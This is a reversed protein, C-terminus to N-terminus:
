EAWKETTPPHCFNAEFLDAGPTLNINTGVTKGKRWKCQDDCTAASTTEVCRDILDVDQTLDKPACYDHDPVLDAGNNWACQLVGSVSVTLCEASNTKIVCEAWQAKTTKIAADKIPHCFEESFLAPPTPCVEFTCTTTDWPAAYATTGSGCMPPTTTTPGACVPKNIEAATYWKCPVVCTAASDAKSCASFETPSAAVSSALCFDKNAPVLAKGTSWECNAPPCTAQSTMTLCAPAKEDWKETVPPHCFNSEFLATNATDLETNKAVEKGKRWMCQDVCTAATTTEVCRDILDVDQTLDRPACYDHDPILDAGINWVCQGAGTSCDAASTKAVCDAWQTKTTKTGATQM